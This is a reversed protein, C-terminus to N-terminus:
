FYWNHEALRGQIKKPYWNNEALIGQFKNFCRNNNALMGQNKNSCRHNKRPYVEITIPTIKSCASPPRTTATTTFYASLISLPKAADNLIKVLQKM